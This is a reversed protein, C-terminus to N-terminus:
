SKKSYGNTIRHCSYYLQLLHGQLIASFSGSHLPALPSNQIQILMLVNKEAPFVRAREIDIIIVREVDSHLCTLRLDWTTHSLTTIFSSFNLLPPFYCENCILSTIQCFDFCVQLMHLCFIIKFALSLQLCVVIQGLYFLFVCPMFYRGSLNWNFQDMPPLVWRVAAPSIGPCDALCCAALM